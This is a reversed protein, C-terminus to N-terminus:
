DKRRSRCRNWRRRCHESRPDQEVRRVSRSQRRRRAAGPGDPPQLAAAQALMALLVLLPKVKRGGRIFRRPRPTRRRAGLEERQVHAHRGEGALRRHHSRRWDHVDQRTWGQRTLANPAGGECQWPTIKGDAEKVDVYIWIHPSQWEVKTVVGKLTLPKNGDFEAAFSHHALAALLLAYALKM